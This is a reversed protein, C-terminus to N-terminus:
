QGGVVVYDHEETGLPLEVVVGIGSLWLALDAAITVPALLFFAFARSESGAPPLSGYLRDDTVATPMSLVVRRDVTTSDGDSDTVDYTSFNRGGPPPAFYVIKWRQRRVKPDRELHIEVLGWHAAMGETLPTLSPDINGEKDVRHVKDGVSLFRALQTSRAGDSWREHWDTVALPVDRTPFFSDEPTFSVVDPGPNESPDRHLVHTGVLHVLRGDELRTRLHLVPEGPGREVCVGTIESVAVAPQDADIVYPAGAHLVRATTATISFCGPTAISVLALVVLRAALKRVM